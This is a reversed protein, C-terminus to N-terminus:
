RVHGAGESRQQVFQVTDVALSVLGVVAVAICVWGLCRGVINATRRVQASTQPDLKVDLLAQQDFTAALKAWVDRDIVLFPSVGFLTDLGPTYAEWRLATTNWFVELGLANGLAQVDETPPQGPKDDDIMDARLWM